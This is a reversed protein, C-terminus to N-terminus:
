QLEDVGPLDPSRSAALQAAWRRVQRGLFGDPRGFDGLGVAVPDVAHLDALTAMMAPVVASRGRAPLAAADSRTRVILGDAFTMVYFPAGTVTEDTCLALPRPVPVATGQLASLVRHERAMDHATALVHGLPPRRLVLRGADSSLLYTLNSRGGAVLTATLPGDVLGRASLWATVAGLALGPLDSDAVRDGYPLGRAHSMMPAMGLVRTSVGSRQLSM